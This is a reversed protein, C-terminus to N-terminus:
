DAHLREESLQLFAFALDADFQRGAWDFIEKRADDHSRAVDYGREATIAEYADALQFVKALKSIDDANLHFPYGTGDVREHHQELIDATAVSFKLSRVVCAGKWPHQHMIDWEAEDLRGPKKLIHDPVWVKGLDHLIAGFKLDQLEKNSLQLSRGFNLAIRCVRPLHEATEVSKLHMAAQFAIAFAELLEVPAEVYEKVGASIMPSSM